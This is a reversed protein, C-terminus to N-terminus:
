YWGSTGTSSLNNNKFTFDGFVPPVLLEGAASRSVKLQTGSSAFNIPLPPISNSNAENMDSALDAVSYDGASVGTGVISTITSGDYTYTFVDGTKALNLAGYLEDYNKSYATANAANAVNVFGAGGVTTAIEFEVEMASSTLTNSVDGAENNFVATVGNASTNFSARVQNPMARNAANLSNAVDSFSYTGAAFVSTRLTQNDIQLSFRSRTPLNLPNMIMVYEVAEEQGDTIQLNVTESFTDGTSSTYELEFSYINDNNADNFAEYEISSTILGSIANVQFHSADTGGSISFTGTGSDSQVFNQLALSLMGDEANSSNVARFSLNNSEIAALTSSSSKVISETTNEELTFEILNSFKSAGNTATITFNYINGSLSSPDFSINNGEIKGSQSVSFKAADEGTIELTALPNNNLFTQLGSGLQDTDISITNADKANISVSEFSDKHTSTNITTGFSKLGSEKGLEESRQSIISLGFVEQNAVGTRFSQKYSGDLLYVQNFQLNESIKDIEETLLSVEAQANKRDQDTYIGNAMQVSIERIRVLMSNVKNMGSGATQILSIGNSANSIAMNTSRLQAELKNAVALGAADDSGSNVRRGSSLKELNDEVSSSSNTAYTRATIAGVNTNIVTM